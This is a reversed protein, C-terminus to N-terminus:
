LTNSSPKYCKNGTRQEEKDAVMRLFGKLLLERQAEIMDVIEYKSRKGEEIEYLYVSGLLAWLIKEADYTTVLNKELLHTITLAVDTLSSDRNLQL